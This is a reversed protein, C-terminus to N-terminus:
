ALCEHILDQLPAPLESMPPLEHRVCVLDILQATNEINPYLQEENKWLLIHWLLYGFSFVDVARSADGRKELLEPASWVPAGGEFDDMRIEFTALGFDTM